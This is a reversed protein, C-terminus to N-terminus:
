HGLSFRRAAARASIGGYDVRVVVVPSAARREGVQSAMGPDPAVLLSVLTAGNAEALDRAVQEADAAGAGASAAALAAADAAWQARAARVAQETTVVIVAVVLAAAVMLVAVLPIVSGRDDVVNRPNRNM